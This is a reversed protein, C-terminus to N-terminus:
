DRQQLERNDKPQTFGPQIFALYLIRPKFEREKHTSFVAESQGQQKRQEGSTKHWGLNRVQMLIQHKQMSTGSSKKKTM